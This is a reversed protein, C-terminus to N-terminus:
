RAPMPTSHRIARRGGLRRGRGAGHHAGHSLNLVGSVGFILTFGIAGLAYLSSIAFGDILIQLALMCAPRPLQRRRTLFSRRHSFAGPSLGPAQSRCGDSPSGVKIFTPFKM